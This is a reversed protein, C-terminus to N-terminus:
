VSPWCAWVSCRCSRASSMSAAGASAAFAPHLDACRGRDAGRAARQHRVGLAVVCTRGAVRGAAPGARRGRRHHIGVSRVGTWAGQRHIHRQAARALDAPDDGRGSRAPVTGGGAPRRRARTRGHHRHRRVRHRRRPLGAARRRYGRHSRGGAVVGRVRDRLVGSDVAGRDFGHEPGRHDVPHDRERDHHRGRDPRRGPRHRAFRAM